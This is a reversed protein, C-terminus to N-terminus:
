NGLVKDNKSLYELLPAHHQQLAKIYRLEDYPQRTQWCRFMIRIWKFALSRIAAQHAHGTKRQQQYYAQAWISFRISVNAFEHFTQRLFKSCVARCLTMKMKGSDKKVPSIGMVNQVETASQFRSRDTGFAALLRPALQAGAGPFSEFISADEHQAFLDTIATDYEKICTDLDLLLTAIMKARISTSSIIAPDTTLPQATQIRKLRQANLEPKRCGHTMYFHSIEGPHAQKLSDFTPYTLLLECALPAYLHEGCIELFLPYSDKLLIKLQNNYRTRQKVAERRDRTLRQLTRTMVTDRKLCHLTDRHLTLLDLLLEADTPDDKAGSLRVAQRYRSLSLPNVPYVDIWDFELLFNVLAGTKQELAVAIYQHNIRLQINSLWKQLAQPSQEIQNHTREQNAPDLVCVEHGRDAWDIAIFLAYSTLIEADPAFTEKNDSNSRAKKNDPSTNMLTESPTEHRPEEIPSAPPPAPIFEAIVTKIIDHMPSLSHPSINQKM